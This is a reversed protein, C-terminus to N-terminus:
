TISYYKEFCPICFAAEKLPRSKETPFRAHFFWVAAPSAATSPAHAVFLSGFADGGGLDYIGAPTGASKTIASVTSPHRRKNCVADLISSRANLGIL